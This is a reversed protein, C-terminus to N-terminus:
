VTDDKALAIVSSTIELSFARAMKFSLHLAEYAQTM